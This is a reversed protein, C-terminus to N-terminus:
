MSCTAQGPPNKEALIDRVLKWAVDGDGDQGCPIRSTLPLVGMPM